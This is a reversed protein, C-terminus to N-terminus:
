DGARSIRYPSPRPSRALLDRWRLLARSCAPEPRFQDANDTPVPPGLRVTRWCLPERRAKGFGMAALQEEAVTM